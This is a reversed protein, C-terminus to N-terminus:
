DKQKCIDILTAHEWISAKISLALICNSIVATFAVHTKCKVLIAVITHTLLASSKPYKEIVFPFKKKKKMSPLPPKWGNASPDWFDWIPTEM